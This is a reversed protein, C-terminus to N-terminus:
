VVKSIREDTGVVENKMVVARQSNKLSRDTSVTCFSAIKALAGFAIAILYVLKFAEVYALKTAMGALGVLTPTAGRVAEYAAQTNTAAATILLQLLSDSYLVGSDAIADRM